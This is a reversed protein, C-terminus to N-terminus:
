FHVVLGTSARLDTQSSSSFRTQLADFQIRWELLRTLPYDVGGGFAYAFSTYSASVLSTAQHYHSAGVIVEAFPRFRKLRFSLRPGFLFNYQEVSTKVEQPNEPQSCFSSDTSPCPYFVAFDPSGYQGSFDAVIGLHHMLRAEVSANWGSLGVRNEPYEVNLYSYGAFVNGSILQADCTSAFLWLAFAAFGLHRM